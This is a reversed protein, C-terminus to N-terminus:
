KLVVFLSNILDLLYKGSNEYEGNYTYKVEFDTGSKTTKSSTLVMKGSQGILGSLMEAQEDSFLERPITTFTKSWDIESYVFGSKMAKKMSKRSMKKAGYGKTHNLALDEDNTLIFLGGQNIMYLPVSNFIANEFVWYGEKKKCESTIKAIQKLVIEPIDNRGTSFGLTFVPMEEESYVEKEEYNFDEDYTYEIRKVTVKKVGNYTGFMSGRYTEFIADKNLFENLLEVALVNTAIRGNKEKKLLPIFTKYAQEYAERLNVNYTFFAPVDQPIYKVVNKDFKTNNMKEYVSGLTEGYVASINAVLHDDKLHLEGMLKNGKYLEKWEKHLSPFMTRFYSFGQGQQISRSNDLYFVAEAKRDLTARLDADVQPLSNGKIFLDVCISQFYQSQLYAYVSDRLEAYNKVSLDEAPLEYIESDGEELSELEEEVDYPSEDVFEEDDYDAEEEYVEYDDGIMDYYEQYYSSPLEGYGREFWTSDAVKRVHSQLPDVRLLLGTNGKILLHNFYSNFYRVGELESEVEQFDDFVEFLQNLSKIGFTFGAVEYLTNTGFFVHIKQDFDIGSDKITKGNTSGDFLEQQIEAMFAYNVLDDMSVKQLIQINNLSFVTVAATPILDESKQAKAPNLFGILLFGLITHRFM